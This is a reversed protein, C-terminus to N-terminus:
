DRLAPCGSKSNGALSKSRRTMGGNTQTHTHFEREARQNSLGAVITSTDKGIWDAATSGRAVSDNDLSVTLDVEGTKTEQAPSSPTPSSRSSRLLTMHMDQSELQYELTERMHALYQKEEKLSEIEEQLRRVTADGARRKKIESAICEGLKLNHACETALSAEAAEMMLSVLQGLSMTM